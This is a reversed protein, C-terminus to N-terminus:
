RMAGFIRRRIHLGDRVMPSGVTLGPAKERYAIAVRHESVRLLQAGLPRREDEGM